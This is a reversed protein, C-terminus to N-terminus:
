MPPKPTNDKQPFLIKCSDYKAQDLPPMPVSAPPVANPANDFDFMDWPAEANADRNTLAPMVFRAEIFRLISTHDYVRHSVFKKKAYPSIVVFPVRIGYIDFGGQADGATTEPKYGDPPCAKPPPVHDYFGGHEDYTIFIATKDWNPSKSVADVVRALFRQGVQMIAPPHEDDSVAGERAIGPDVFAVQPLTGAAADDFFQNIRKVRDLSDEGNYYYFFRDLLIGFGPVSSYYITWNVQRKQMADFITNENGMVFENSIKGRSTAAYMYFRNPWTPGPVSCFYRDAISFNLAAWTMFPVDASDYYTLARAGSMMELTGGPVPQEHTEDNAKFFGTMQGASIEEHTANWGHAPDVICLSTDRTLAAPKGDLDPNVFSAPAVDVDPQGAQPLKQFYHDFSRNEMMIVIIHDVPIQKGNPHSEGQTEKPLAGAQYGCAQRMTLAASDEPADVPRNWEPPGPLPEECAAFLVFALVAKKM